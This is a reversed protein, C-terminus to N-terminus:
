CIKINLILLLQQVTYAPNTKLANSQGIQQLQVHITKLSWGVYEQGTEKLVM